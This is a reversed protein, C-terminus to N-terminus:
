NGVARPRGARSRSRAAGSSAEKPPATDAKPREGRGGFVDSQNTLTKMLEEAPDARGHESSRILSKLQGSLGPPLASAPEDVLTFSRQSAPGAAGRSSRAAIATFGDAAVSPDAAIGDADSSHGLPSGAPGSPAAWDSGESIGLSEDGPLVERIRARQRLPGFVHGYRQSNSLSTIVDAGKDLFEIAVLAFDLFEPLLEERVRVTCFSSHALIGRASSIGRVVSSATMLRRRAPKRKSIPRVTFGRLGRDETGWTEADATEIDVNVYQARAHARAPPTAAKLTVWAAEQENLPITLMSIQSKSYRVLAFELLCDPFTQKTRYYDWFLTQVLQDTNRWPINGPDLNRPAPGASTTFPAIESVLCVRGFASGSNVSPLRKFVATLFGPYSAFAASDLLLNQRSDLRYADTRREVDLMLDYIHAIAHVMEGPLAPASSASEAQGAQDARDAPARSSQPAPQSGAQAEPPLDPLPDPLGGHSPGLGASGSGPPGSPVAPLTSSAPQAAPAYAQPAGVYLPPGQSAPAVQPGRPAQAAQTALAAQPAQVAQAMQAIRAFQAAQAAQAAQTAPSPQNAQATQAAQTVQALQALDPLGPLGPFAPPGVLPGMSAHMRDVAPQFPPAAPRQGYAQPVGAPGFVGGVAGRIGAGGSVAAGETGVAGVAKAVGTVGAPGEAAGAVEGAGAPNYYWLPQEAFLRPDEQLGPQSPWAAAPLLLGHRQFPGGGPGVEPHPGQPDM